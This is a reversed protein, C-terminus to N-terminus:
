ECKSRNSPTCGATVVSLKERKFLQPKCYIKKMSRGEMYFFFNIAPHDLGDIQFLWKISRFYFVPLKREPRNGTRYM